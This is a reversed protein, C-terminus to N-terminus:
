KIMMSEKKYKEFQQMNVTNEVSENTDNEQSKYNNFTLQNSHQNPKLEYVKTKHDWPANYTPSLM